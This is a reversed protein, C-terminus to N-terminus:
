AHISRLFKFLDDHIAFHDQAHESIVPPNFMLTRTMVELQTESPDYTHGVIKIGSGIDLRVYAGGKNNCFPEEFKAIGEAIFAKLGREIQYSNLNLM